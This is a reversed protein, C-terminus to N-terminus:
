ENRIREMRRRVEYLYDKGRLGSLSSAESWNARASAARAGAALGRGATQLEMRGASELGNRRVEALWSLLGAIETRCYADGGAADHITSAMSGIPGPPAAASRPRPILWARFDKRGSLLRVTLVGALGLLSALTGIYAGLAGTLLALGCVVAAVVNSLSLWKL